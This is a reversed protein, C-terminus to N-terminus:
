SVMSIKDELYKIRSLLDSREEDFSGMVATTTSERERSLKQLRESLATSILELDNKEASMTELKEVLEGVVTEYYELDGESRSFNPDIFSRLQRDAPEPGETEDYTIRGTFTHARSEDQELYEEVDQLLSLVGGLKDSEEINLELELLQM